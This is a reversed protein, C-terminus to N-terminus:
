EESKLEELLRKIDEIAFGKRYLSQKMRREYEWGEYKEYRRHAKLGQHKLAEWEADEEKEVGWEHFLQQIITFSYGKQQLTQEIKQRLASSSLKQNKGKTKDAIKIATQLQENDSFDMLSIDIYEDAIGKEKLEKRILNPGKVTTSRQTRAYAKAFELDDIYRQDDLKHLVEQIIMEGIGKSKLYTHVEKKSRMRYSLYNLALNYAKKVDDAYQIETLDLEDLERGKKLQFKVLVYEDVSFGYEEGKGYDLYVNYRESNKAQTTIKTIIPM